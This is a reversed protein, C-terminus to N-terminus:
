PLPSARPRLREPDHRRLATVTCARGDPARLVTGIRDHAAPAFGLGIRGGFTPSDSESTLDIAPAIGAPADGITVGVLRERPAQSVSRLAEAGRMAPDTSAVLGALGLESPLRPGALERLFLIHGCEIRLSDAATFGAERIGYSRGAALMAQWAATARGAEIVVEYGLEGSYGLRAVLCPGGALEREAFRFYGLARVADSGTLKALVAGSAPGQLAIVASPDLPRVVVDREAAGAAVWEGDAPRGTFLWFREASFMWLTADNVVTGDDRLLLTYACRGPVLAGPDRTQLRVLHRAAGRGLIEWAGMFSFDFLGCAERTARHEAAADGFDAPVAGGDPLGLLRVGRGAFHSALTDM